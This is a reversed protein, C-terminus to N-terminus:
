RNLRVITNRGIWCEVNIEEGEKIGERDLDEQSPFYQGYEQVLRQAEASYNEDLQLARYYTEVALYIAPYYENEENCNKYASAYLDGLVMYPQGWSPTEDMAAEIYERSRDYDGFHFRQLLALDLYLESKRRKDNHAQIEALFYKVAKERDNRKLFYHALFRSRVSDAELDNISEALSILDSDDHCDFQKLKMYYLRMKDANEIDEYYEKGYTSFVDECNQVESKTVAAIHKNMKDLVENYYNKDRHENEINANCINTLRRHIKLMEKDDIQGKNYRDLSLAFYPYLTYHVSRNGLLSISKKMWEHVQKRERPKYKYLEFAKRGLNEGENGFCHIRQDYIMMLTDIYDNRSTFSEAADILSRYMRIGDRYTTERAGPANRFVMRWHALASSFDQAEFAERYAIYSTTLSVSDEGWSQCHLSDSEAHFDESAILAISFITSLIVFLLLQRFNM